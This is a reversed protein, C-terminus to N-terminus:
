ILGSALLHSFFLVREVAVAMTAITGPCFTAFRLFTVSRVVRLDIAFAALSGVLL